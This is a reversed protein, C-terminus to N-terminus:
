RVFSSRRSDSAPMGRPRIAWGRSIAVTARKRALSSEDNMVPASSTTSPPKVAPQLRASRQRLGFEPRVCRSPM